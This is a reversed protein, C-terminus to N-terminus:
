GVWHEVGAVGPLLSLCGNDCRVHQGVFSGMIDVRMGEGCGSKGKLHLIGNRVRTCGLDENHFVRRNHVFTYCACRELPGESVTAHYIRIMLSVHV